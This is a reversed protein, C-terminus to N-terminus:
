REAKSSTKNKEVQLVLSGVLLQMAISFGPQM